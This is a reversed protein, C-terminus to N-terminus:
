DTPGEDGDSAESGPFALPVVISEFGAAVMMLSLNGRGALQALEALDSESAAVDLGNLNLFVLASLLAVRANGEGFPTRRMLETMLVAAKVPMGPFADHGREIRAPVAVAEHLADEDVKPDDGLELEALAILDRPTLYRVTV